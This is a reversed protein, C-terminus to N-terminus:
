RYVNLYKWSFISVKRSLIDDECKGAINKCSSTRDSRFLEWRLQCAERSCHYQPCRRQVLDAHNRRLLFWVVIM